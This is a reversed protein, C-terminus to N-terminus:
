FKLVERCTAIQDLAKGWDRREHDSLAKAENGRLFTIVHDAYTLAKDSGNASPKSVASPPQAASPESTHEPTTEPRPQLDAPPGDQTAKNSAKGKKKTKPEPIAGSEVAAKYGSDFSKNTATEIKDAEETKGEERLKTIAESTKVAKDVTRPSIGLKKGVADRAKGKNAPPLNAVEAKGANSKRRTALAREIRL